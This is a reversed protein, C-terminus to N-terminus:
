IATSAGVSEWFRRRKMLVGAVEVLLFLFVYACRQLLGANTEFTHIEAAGAATVNFLM